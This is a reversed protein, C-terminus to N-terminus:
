VRPSIDRSALLFLLLTPTMMIFRSDAFFLAAPPAFYAAADAHLRLPILRCVRCRRRPTPPLSFLRLCHRRCLRLPLLQLSRPMFISIALVVITFVIDRLSFSDDAAYIPFFVDAASHFLTL